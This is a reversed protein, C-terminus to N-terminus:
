APFQCFLTLAISASFISLLPNTQSPDKLSKFGSPIKDTLDDSWFFYSPIHDFPEINLAMPEIPILVFGNIM